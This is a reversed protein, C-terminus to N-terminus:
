PAGLDLEVFNHPAWPGNFDFAYDNDFDAAADFIAKEFTKEHNRPVLCAFQVVESVQRAPVLRKVRRCVPNLFEEIHAAHTEREANLIQEFYQGIAIKEHQRPERHPPFLRDREQRLEPSKTIFYEFVNPVDWLVRLGMEIHGKVDALQERIPKKNKKLLNVIDAKRNALHGFKVPLVTEQAMCADLVKKHAALNARQPRIRAGEYESLVAVLGEHEVIHIASEAIGIPEEPATLGDAAFAYLYFQKRPPRAPM